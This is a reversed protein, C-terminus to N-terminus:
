RPSESGRRSRRHAAETRSGPDPLGGVVGGPRSPRLRVRDRGGAREGARVSEATGRCSSRWRRLSWRPSPAGRSRPTRACRSRWGYQCSSPSCRPRRRCGFRGVPRPGSSMGAPSGSRFGSGARCSALRTLWGPATPWCSLPRTSGHPTSMVVLGVVVLWSMFISSSMDCKARSVRCVNWDGTVWRCRSVSTAWQTPPTLIGGQPTGTDTDQYDGLETLIGAKLFAKVLRLVRKDKVRLRVRDMLAVHDISDFCAEIDADLVWRYGQTGFHHIEAIADHARREPRFGYSVPVFDAEFIPELVLKLAAQVVRDTVTPIGLRRVKGSGGPKPIKRERVPQPRFEGGKILVRLDDLFASRGVEAEIRTVTWGDSGATNAGRNTAVRDWAVILAAPDHVLNFLDDFRRGPDAAAWRHLKAQM